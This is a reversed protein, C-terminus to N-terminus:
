CEDWRLSCAWRTSFPGPFWNVKLARRSVATASTLNVTTGLWGWCMRSFRSEACSDARLDCLLLVPQHHSGSQGPVLQWGPRRVRGAVGACGLEDGGPTASREGAPKQADILSFIATNAGIGLALSLVAVATFGRNQRLTRLGYRVDQGLHGLWTWGWTSRTEERKLGPNGFARLAAYRAEEPSMGAAINEDTKMQIHFRLEDDLNHEQASRGFLSRL